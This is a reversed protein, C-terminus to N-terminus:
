QSGLICDPIAASMLRGQCKFLPGVRVVGNGKPSTGAEIATVGSQNTIQLYGAGTTASGLSAVLFKDNTIQLVGGSGEPVHTLVAIPAQVGPSFVALRGHGSQLADMKSVVNGSANATAVAGGNDPDVSISAVVKQSNNKVYVVGTGAPGEGLGAIVQQRFQITVSGKGDEGSSMSAAKGGEANLASVEGGSATAALEVAEKNGKGYVRVRNVGGDALMSAAIDNNSSYIAIGGKGFLRAATGTAKGDSVTLGGTGDEGIILGGVASGSDSYVRVGGGPGRVGFAGAVLQGAANSVRLAGSGDNGSTLEAIPKLGASSGWIVVRGKGGDALVSVALNGNNGYVGIGGRGSLGVGTGNLKGDSVHLRGAGAEEMTVSVAAGAAPRDAVRLLVKGGADVVEFPANVRTVGGPGVVM